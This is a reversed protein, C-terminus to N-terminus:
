FPLNLDEVLAKFQPLGRIPDLFPDTKIDLLGGDGLEAARKLWILAEAPEDWYAYIEAYQFAAGDGQSSKLKELM